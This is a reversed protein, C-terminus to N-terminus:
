FRVEATNAISFVRIGVIQGIRDERVPLDARVSRADVAGRPMEFGAAPPRALFDYEVFGDSGPRGDRRVSLSPESFGTGPALGFATLVYGNRSRGVEVRTVSEVPQPRGAATGDAVAAAETEEADEGGGFLSCGAPALLLAAVLAAHGASRLGPFRLGPRRVRRPAHSM